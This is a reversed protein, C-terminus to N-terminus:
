TRSWTQAQMVSAEHRALGRAMANSHLREFRVWKRRKSKAASATILGNKRMDYVRCYFIDRRGANRLRRTTRVVGAQGKRQAELVAAEQEATTQVRPRGM